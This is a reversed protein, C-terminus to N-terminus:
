RLIVKANTLTQDKSWYIRPSGELTAEFDWCLWGRPTKIWGYKWTLNFSRKFWDKIKDKFKFPTVYKPKPTELQIPQLPQNFTMIWVYVNGKFLVRLRDKWSCKWRCLVTGEDGVIAPLPTYEPQNEAFITEEIQEGPIVPSVPKM